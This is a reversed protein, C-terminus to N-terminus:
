LHFPGRKSKNLSNNVSDPSNYQNATNASPLDMSTIRDDYWLHSVTMKNQTLTGTKDSCIVTTSGLTEVAELHKVLCSQHALRKSALTLSVVITVVLSEPVNAVIMGM